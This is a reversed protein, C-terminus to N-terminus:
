GAITLRVWISTLYTLSLLVVLAHLWRRSTFMLLIMLCVSLLNIVNPRALEAASATFGTTRAIRNVTVVLVYLAFLGWFYPRNEEYYARLNVGSSPIEDPLAAASLFFLLTLSLLDPLFQGFSFVPQATWIGFFRWWVQVITLIVLLAAAVPLWDWQVTRRARVLRHFSTLLDAFALGVVISAFTAIYEATSM